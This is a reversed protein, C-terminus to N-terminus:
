CRPRMNDLYRGSQIHSNDPGVYLIDLAATLSFSENVSAEVYSVVDGSDSTGVHVWTDRLVLVALLPSICCEQASKSFSFTDLAIAKVFRFMVALKCSIALYVLLRVSRSELSLLAFWTRVRELAGIILTIM